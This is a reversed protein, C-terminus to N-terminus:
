GESRELWKVGLWIGSFIATTALVSKSSLTSMGSLGQGINCGGAFAAGVGMLMGGAAYYPIRARQPLTWRFTGTAWASGLAGCWTGALFAFGFNLDPRSGSFVSAALRALPGSFTLSEPHVPSFEDVPNGTAWWAAVVLAGLLGGAWLLPVHRVGRASWLIAALCALAVGIGVLWGPARLLHPLSLDGCAFPIATREMVALRLPELIGYQTVAAGAAFALLALGASLNGEATLTVTRGACGGALVTGFGFTLGGMTAGLWDLPGTRYGSDAIAAWGAWELIQTSVVAVGLAALYAHIHRRDRMLVLNSVAALMCFRSRQAVAGFCLGIFLGPALEWLSLGSMLSIRRLASHQYTAAM